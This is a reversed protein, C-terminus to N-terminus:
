NYFVFVICFTLLVVLKTFVSPVNQTRYHKFWVLDSISIIRLANQSSSETSEQLSVRSPVYLVCLVCLMLLTAGIM